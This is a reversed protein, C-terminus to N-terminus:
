SVSTSSFCDCGRYLMEDVNAQLIASNTASLWAFMDSSRRLARESTKSRISPEPKGSQRRIKRARHPQKAFEGMKTADRHDGILGANSDSRADFAGHQREDAIPGERWILAVIREGPHLPACSRIDLICTRAQTCLKMPLM